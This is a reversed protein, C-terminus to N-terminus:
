RPAEVTMILSAESVGIGPVSRFLRGIDDLTNVALPELDVGALDRPLAPGADRDLAYCRVTEIGAPPHLRLVFGMTEDPLHLPVGGRIRADLHYRNPFLRIVRDGGPPGYRNFCYLWADRSTQIALRAIEGVRYVPRRGRDSSLLLTIPGVNDARAPVAQPVLPLTDPISGRAVRVSHSVRRGERGALSLHIEIERGFDWYTGDLLYIGGAGEMM